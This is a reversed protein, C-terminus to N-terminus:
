VTGPDSSSSSVKLDRHEAIIDWLSEIVFHALKDKANNSVHTSDVFDEDPIVPPQILKARKTHQLLSTLMINNLEQYSETAMLTSHDHYGVYVVIEFDLANIMHAFDKSTNM